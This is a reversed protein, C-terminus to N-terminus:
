QESILKVFEDDTWARLTKTTIRQMQAMKLIIKVMTEENPVDFIAVVDYEGMTFCVSLSGGLEETFKRTMAVSEPIKDLTKRTNETWKGLVIYKQM